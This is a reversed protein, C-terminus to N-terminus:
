SCDWVRVRLYIAKADRWILPEQGGSPMVSDLEIIDSRCIRGGHERKLAVGAVDGAYCEM